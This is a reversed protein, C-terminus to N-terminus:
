RARVTAPITSYGTVAMNRYKSKARQVATAIETRVSDERMVTTWMAVGKVYRDQAEQDNKFRNMANTYDVIMTPIKNLLNSLAVEAVTNAGRNKYKGM